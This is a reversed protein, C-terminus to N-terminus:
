HGHVPTIVHNQVVPFYDLPELLNGLARKKTLKRRKVGKEYGQWTHLRQFHAAQM